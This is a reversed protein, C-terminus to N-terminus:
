RFLAMTLWWGMVDLTTYSPCAPDLVLKDIGWNKMAAAVLTIHGKSTLMGTKVVGVPMDMLVAHLSKQFFETPIPHIDQVGCTNQATLATIATMGYCGHATIVKLDALIANACHPMAPCTAGEIGAGGSPDSGAITLVTPLINAMVVVTHASLSRDPKLPFIYLPMVTFAGYPTADSSIGADHPCPLAILCIMEFHLSASKRM